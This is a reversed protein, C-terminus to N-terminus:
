QRVKKHCRGLTDFARRLLREREKMMDFGAEEESSTAQAFASGILLSKLVLGGGDAGGSFSTEEARVSAVGTVGRMVVVVVVIRTVEFGISPSPRHTSYSSTTYTVIMENCSTVNGNKGELLYGHTTM